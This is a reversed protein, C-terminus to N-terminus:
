ASKSDRVRHWLERLFVDDEMSKLVCPSAITIFYKKKAQKSLNKELPDVRKRLSEEKRLKTEFEIIAHSIRM